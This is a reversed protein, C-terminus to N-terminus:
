SGRHVTRAFPQPRYGQMSSVVKRRSPVGTALTRPVSPADEFGVADGVPVTAHDHRWSSAGGRARRGSRERRAYASPRCTAGEDIPLPDCAASRGSRGQSARPTVHPLHPGPPQM